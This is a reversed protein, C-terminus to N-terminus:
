LLHRLAFARGSGSKLYLEFDSAQKRSSFAVYTVLRWPRFKSTHPVDGINHKELRTKLDSTLGTYRQDPHSESRLLYVYHIRQELYPGGKSFSRRAAKGVDEAQWGFGQRLSTSATPISGM